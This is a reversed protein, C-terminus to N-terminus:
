CFWSGPQKYERVMATSKGPGEVVSVDREVYKSPFKDLNPVGKPQGVKFTTTEFSNNAGLVDLDVKFLGFHSHLPAAVNRHVIGGLATEWPNLSGAYWRVECYGAFLLRVQVTGDASFEVETLYDYNAVTSMM